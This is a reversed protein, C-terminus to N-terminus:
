VGFQKAGFTLLFLLIPAVLMAGDLRDLVGGHGPIIDGSDKVGFIRKFKSEMLDSVQSSISLLISIILFFTLDGVFILSSFLGIVIASAVGGFFGSWTKGPSITPALKKGGIIRGTFYASIDTAWIILFMWFLIDSDILKIKLLCYCPITIYLFGVLRWKNKGRMSSTMDCWEFVMLVTVALTFFIFLNHSFLIIYIALPVMILSSIVRKRLQSSRDVKLKLFSKVKSFDFSKDKAM